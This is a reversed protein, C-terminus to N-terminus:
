NKNSYKGLQIFIYRITYKSKIKIEDYNGHTCIIGSHNKFDGLCKTIQM